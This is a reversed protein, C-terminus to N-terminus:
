DAKRYRAPQVCRQLTKIAMAYMTLALEADYRGYSHEDRMFAHQGNVEHWSFNVQSAALAARIKDRGEPPVHPDQRGFIMVLEGKIEAARELSDDGDKSLSGKHVDTAYWCISAKIEPHLAARFALGGGICFGATGVAGNCAPHSLLLRITAATDSDIARLEKSSKYSNGKATDEPTYALAAGAPLFEHYIDPIAVVFGHGAFFQAARTIPGTCQFIESWLVLGPFLRTEDKPRMLRVRMAGTVTDIDASEDIILM